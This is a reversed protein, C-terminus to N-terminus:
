CLPSSSAMCVVENIGHNKLTKIMEEFTSGTTCIDDLILVPKHLDKSTDVEFAEKLNLLREKRTLKYQPKTDKIRKILEFNPILGSLKCFEDVVLEMHNYKRKKIRNLHLPVAVVQFDREDGIRVWYEYMFKALYFALEKQNHYKLGRILKQLNKDYNGACFINAGEIIREARIDNFSLSDYCKPCMKLSYKSSSCFYCKKRYILDLLSLFFKKMSHIIVYNVHRLLRHM